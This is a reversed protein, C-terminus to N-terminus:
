PCATAHQAFVQAMKTLDLISIKNDGDQNMRQIGADVGITPALTFTQGFFKAAKTLDLISVQGDGDVDARMVNCYSAPHKSLATHQANTYGDGSINDDCADGLSDAGPRNAATNAADTNLQDPNYVSPCNDVTNAIGDGDIDFGDCRMLISAQVPTAIAGNGATVLIPVGVTYGSIGRFVTSAIGGATVTNIPTVVGVDFVSFNVPVGDAVPAGNADTVSATVTATHAGDCIVEDPQAALVVVSPPGVVTVLATAHLPTTALNIGADLTALGPQKGGCVVVSAATPQTGIAQQRTFFTDGTIGEVANGFGIQAVDTAAPPTITFNVVARTLTRNGADRVVAQALTSQPPPIAATVDTSTGCALTQANTTGSTSITSEVLSLSVSSPPGVVNVDFIYEVDDQAVTGQGFFGASASGELVHFLVVGDGNAAFGTPSGASCDNDQGFAPDALPRVTLITGSTGATTLNVPTVAPVPGTLTFTTATVPATVTYSGAAILTTPTVAGDTIASISIVDGALLGHPGTTTIVSPSALTASAITAAVTYPITPETTCTFFSNSPAELLTLGAPLNIPVPGEHDVFMFVDLTCSLGSAYDALAGLGLKNNAPTTCDTSIQNDGDFGEINAFDSDTLIGDDNGIALALNHISPTGPASTPPLNVGGGGCAAQVDGATPADTTIGDVANVIYECGVVAVGTPAANATPAISPGRDGLGAVVAVITM